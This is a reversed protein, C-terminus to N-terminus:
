SKMNEITWGTEKMKKGPYPKLLLLCLLIFNSTAGYDFDM